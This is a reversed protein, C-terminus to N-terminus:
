FARLLALDHSYEINPLGILCLFSRGTSSPRHHNPAEASGDDNYQEENELDVNSISRRRMSSLWNFASETSESVSDHEAEM